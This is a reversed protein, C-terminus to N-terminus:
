RTDSGHYFDCEGVSRDRFSGSRRRGDGLVGLSEAGVLRTSQATDMAVVGMIERVQRMVAGGKLHDALILNFLILGGRGNERLISLALRLIGGSGDM